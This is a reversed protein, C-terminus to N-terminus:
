QINVELYQPQYTRVFDLVEDLDPKNTLGICGSTGDEGNNKEFSPDYHIGLASRGTQFLPQIALFRDGAEPITGAISTKAVKYKGDPLPAETGSQHRNKNQTHSRGSVTLYSNVLEGNVYLRLEYLPNGLLNTKGTFTLTMFNGSEISATLVKQSDYNKRDNLQSEQESVVELSKQSEPFTANANCSVLSLWALSVLISRFKM